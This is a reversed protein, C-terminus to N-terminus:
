SSDNFNITKQLEALYAYSSSSMSVLQVLREVDDRKNHYLLTKEEDDAAYLVKDALEFYTGFLGQSVQLLKVDSDVDGLDM